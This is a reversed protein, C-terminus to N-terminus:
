KEVIIGSNLPFGPCTCRLGAYGPGSDPHLPCGYNGYQACYFQAREGDGGECSATISWFEDTFRVWGTIQGDKRFFSYANHMRQPALRSQSLYELENLFERDCTTKSKNEDGYCRDHTRCARDWSDVPQPDNGALPYSEGCWNGYVPACETLGMKHMAPICGSLMILSIIFVFKM